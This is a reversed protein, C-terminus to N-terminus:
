SDEEEEEESKIFKIAFLIWASGFRMGLSRNNIFIVEREAWKRKKLDLKVVTLSSKAGQQKTLKHNSSKQKFNSLNRPNNTM